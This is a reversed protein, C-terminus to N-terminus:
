RKGASSLIALADGWIKRVVMAAAEARAFKAAQGAWMQMRETDGEKQAAKVLAPDPTYTEAAGAPSLVVAALVVTLRLVRCSRAFM